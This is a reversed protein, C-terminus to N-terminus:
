HSLPVMKSFLKRIGVCLWLVPPILLSILWIQTFTWWASEPVRVTGYVPIYWSVICYVNKGDSVLAQSAATAYLVVPSLCTAVIAAKTLKKM